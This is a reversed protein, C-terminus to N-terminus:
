IFNGIAIAVGYLATASSRM